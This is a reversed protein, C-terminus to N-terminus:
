WDDKVISDFNSSESLFMWEALSLSSTEGSNEKSCM